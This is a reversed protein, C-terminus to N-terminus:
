GDNEEWLAMTNDENANEDDTEEMEMEDDLMAHERLDAPIEKTAKAGLKRLKDVKSVLNGSGESLKKFTDQYAAQSRDLHQGLKRLDDILGVFKDHLRGAETAILRVNRSQNEQKWIHKITRLTALLTSPTVLVVNKGFADMYLNDDYRLALTFAPEIPIFLLVFDQTKVGYLSPYDKASLQKIHSRLSEVHAKAYKEQEESNDATTFREYATLSVKSDLIIFKGGPLNLVVDPQLRRGEETTGSAQVEYERGKELGSKELVSELIM